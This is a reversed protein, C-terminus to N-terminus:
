FHFILRLRFSVPPPVSSTPGFATPVSSAPADQLQQIKQRHDVAPKYWMEAGMNQLQKKFIGHAQLGSCGGVVQLEALDRRWHLQQFVQDFSSDPGIPDLIYGSSHETSMIQSKQWVQAKTADSRLVKLSLTLCGIYHERSDASDHMDALRSQMEEHFKKFSSLLAARIKVEWHTVTQRSVNTELALGLSFASCNSIVRRMGMRLGGHLSFYRGDKKKRMSDVLSKHEAEHLKDQCSHLKRDLKRKQRLAMKLKMKTKKVTIDRAVLKAILEEKTFNNYDEAVETQAVAAAPIDPPASSCLQVPHQPWQPGLKLNNRIHACLLGWDVVLGLHVLTSGLKHLDDGAISKIRKARKTNLSLLVTLSDLCSQLSSGPFVVISADASCYKTVEWVITKGVSDLPREM